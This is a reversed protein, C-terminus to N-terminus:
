LTGGISIGFRTPRREGALRSDICEALFEEQSQPNFVRDTLVIAGGARAGDNSVGVGIKGQVGDALGAEERCLREAREPTMPVPACACLTACGLTLAALRM